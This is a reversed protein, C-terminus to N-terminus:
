VVAMKVRRTNEVCRYGIALQLRYHAPDTVHALMATTLSIYVDSLNYTKRYLGIIRDRYLDSSCV